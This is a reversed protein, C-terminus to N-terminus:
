KFIGLFHAIVMQKRCAVTPKKNYDDNTGICHLKYKKTGHFPFGLNHLIKISHSLPQLKIELQLRWVNQHILKEDRWWRRLWIPSTWHWSTLKERQMLMWKINRELHLNTEIIEMTIWMHQRVHYYLQAFYV